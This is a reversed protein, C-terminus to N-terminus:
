IGLYAEELSTSKVMRADDSQRRCHLCGDQRPMTTLIGKIYIVRMQGGLNIRLM